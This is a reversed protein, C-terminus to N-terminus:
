VTGPDTRAVTFIAVRETAGGNQIAPAIATSHVVSHQQRVIRDMALCHLHVGDCTIQKTNSVKETHQEKLTVNVIPWPAINGEISRAGPACARAHWCRRQADWQVSTPLDNCTYNLELKGVALQYPRTTSVKNM